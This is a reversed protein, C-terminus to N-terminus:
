GPGKAHEGLARIRLAPHYIGRRESFGVTAVGTLEFSFSGVPFPRTGLLFSLLVNLSGGHAFVAISLDRAEEDPVYGGMRCHIGLADLERLFPPVIRAYMDYCGEGLDTKWTEEAYREVDRRVIEEYETSPMDSLATNVQGERLVSLVKIPVDRGRLVIEATQLARGYPSSFAVDFHTDALAGATAEAQPVGREESLCGTVPREPEVGPDGTMEGHRVLTIRM